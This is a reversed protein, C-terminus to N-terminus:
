VSGSEGTGGPVITEKCIGACLTSKRREIGKGMTSGRGPDGKSEGRGKEPYNSGLFYKSLYTEATVKGMFHGEEKSGCRMSM